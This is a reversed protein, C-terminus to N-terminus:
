EAHPIADYVTVRNRGNEKSYYLAKDADAIWQEHQLYSKKYPALGLSITLKIQNNDFIITSEALIKRVREAFVKGGEVDTDVLTVAFEEGGFRGILDSERLTKKLVDAIHRLAADGGSHGFEDNIRKFHDVDLMLLCSQGENRQLRKAEKKLSEEWFGRNYLGTLRDIRSLSELKHNAEELEKKNIAEDTVDYIIICIHSVEGRVNTLPIFTSNQYMHDAKGTIPRYNKFRFIYPQQEWITFSRNKLVFVSEAKSRFWKEDISPYIDCVNKDKVASPLLGSHNEMFGNWVCVRYERDLVVLGVDITNFMDMMWHIENMEFDAAPM